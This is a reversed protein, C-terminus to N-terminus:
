WMSVFGHETETGDDNVLVPPAWNFGADTSRSLAIDAAYGDGATQLWHVWLAGGAGGNTAAMHPVDAWNAMLHEGVAITRPASQWRGNPALSVFRLANRRGPVSSIWSLMLRGDATTMLDPQASGT